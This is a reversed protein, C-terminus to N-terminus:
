FLTEVINEANIPSPMPINFTEILEHALTTDHNNICDIIKKRNKSVSEKTKPLIIAMAVGEYVWEIFRKEFIWFNSLTRYEVGYPKPRVDGAKGYMKRRNSPKTLLVSPVGLYIDLNKGIDFLNKDSGIHIHGGSYRELDNILVPKKNVKKSWVNYDPECGFILAQPHTLLDKTYVATDDRSLTLGYPSLITELRKSMYRISQVFQDKSYCVPINFELSTNDEQLYFGKMKEDIGFPIPEEKSGGVLGCIPFDHGDKKYFVEVDAGITFM